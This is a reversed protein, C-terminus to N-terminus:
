NNPSRCVLWELIAQREQAALPPRPPPPMLCAHIQAFIRQQATMIDTYSELTPVQQGAGHCITCREHILPGVQSSFSPAADPCAMPYDNPCTSPAPSSCAGALVLGIAAAVISM